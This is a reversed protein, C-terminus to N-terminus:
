AEGSTENRASPRESRAEGASVMLRLVDAFNKNYKGEVAKYM